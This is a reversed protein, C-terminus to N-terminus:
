QGYVQLALTVIKAVEARNVPDLPRFTGTANGQVDTDGAIVGAKAAMEVAAAFEVSSDVDSFVGGTRPEIKVGLAQLLTVVVEARRAFRVPDVSGDAYVAWGRQEACRVYSESWTGKVVSNKLASGCGAPDVKAAQVAIKSLQEITLSDAPGFLGRLTGDAERYGSVIGQGTVDRVYPAFWALKPVDRLIVPVGDVRVTLFVPDEEPVTQRSASSGQGTSPFVESGSERLQDASQANQEDQMQQLVDTLAHADQAADDLSGAVAFSPLLVTVLMAATSPHM